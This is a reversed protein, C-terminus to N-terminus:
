IMTDVRQLKMQSNPPFGLDSGLAFKVTALYYSALVELYHTCKEERSAPNTVSIWTSGQM